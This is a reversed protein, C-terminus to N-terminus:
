DSILVSEYGECVFGQNMFNMLVKEQGCSIIPYYNWNRETFWEGDKELIRQYSGEFYSIEPLPKSCLEQKKVKGEALAFCIQTTRRKALSSVLTNKAEEPFFLFLFAFYVGIVAFFSIFFKKM